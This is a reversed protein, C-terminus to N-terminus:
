GPSEAPARGPPEIAKSLVVADVGSPLAFRAGTAFGRAELFAILGAGAAYERLWAERAGLAALQREM